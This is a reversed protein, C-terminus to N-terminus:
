RQLEKNFDTYKEYRVRKPKGANAKVHLYQVTLPDKSLIEVLDYDDWFVFADIIKQETTKFIEAMSHVDFDAHSKCLYLGYLYVMVAFGDAEPLYKTIFKNEIITYSNDNDKSFSCFAVVIFRALRIKQVNASFREHFECPFQSFNEEKKM